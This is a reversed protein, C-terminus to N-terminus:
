RFTRINNKKVNLHIELDSLGGIFKNNFFIVPFTRHSGINTKDLSRFFIDKGDPDILFSRFPLKLKNLLEFTKSCFPCMKIYFVIYKDESKIDSIAQAYSDKM